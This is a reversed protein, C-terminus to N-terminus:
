KLGMAKRLSEARALSEDNNGVNSPRPMEVKNNNGKVFKKSTEAGMFEKLATAFDKNKGTMHVVKYEVYDKYDDDIDYQSMALKRETAELKLQLGQTADNSKPTPKVKEKERALRKSVIDNVQEQTYRDKLMADVEEQTYTKVEPEKTTQETAGVNETTTTEVNENNEM